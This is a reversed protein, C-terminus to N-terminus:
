SDAGSARPHAKSADMTWQRVWFRNWSILSEWGGPGHGMYMEISDHWAVHWGDPLPALAGFNVVYTGPDGPYHECGERGSV